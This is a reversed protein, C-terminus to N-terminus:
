RGANAEAIADVWAESQERTWALDEEGGYVLLVVVTDRVRVLSMTSTTALTASDGDKLGVVYRSVMSMSLAGDTEHHIPLPVMSEIGMEVDVGVQKSLTGSAQDLLAEVKPALSALRKELDERAGAKMATFQAASMPRDILVKPIQVVFRRTMGPLEGSRAVALDDETLYLALSQSAPPTFTDLLALIETMDPSARDYGAPAPVEITRRGVELPAAVALSSACALLAAAILTKLSRM